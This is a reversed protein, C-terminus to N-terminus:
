WWGVMGVDLAAGALALALALDDAAQLAVDGALDV